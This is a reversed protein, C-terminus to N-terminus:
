SAPVAAPRPLPGALLPPTPRPLPLPLRPAQSATPSPARSHRSPSSTPQAGPPTSTGRIPGGKQGAEKAQKRYTHTTEFGCQQCYGCLASEPAVAHCNRSAHSTYSIAHMRLREQYQISSRPRTAPPWRHHSLLYLATPPINNNNNKNTFSPFRGGRGGLTLLSNAPLQHKARLAGM